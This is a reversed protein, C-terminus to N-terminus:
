SLDLSPYASRNWRAPTLIQLSVNLSGSAAELWFCSGKGGPLRFLTFLLKLFPQGQWTGEPLSPIGRELEEQPTQGEHNLLSYFSANENESWAIFLIIHTIFVDFARIYFCVSRHGGPKLICM